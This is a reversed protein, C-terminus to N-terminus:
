YVVYSKRNTKWQLQTEIKCWQHFIIVKQKGFNLSIVHFM